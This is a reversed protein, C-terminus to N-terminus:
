AIDKNAPAENPVLYLKPKTKVGSKDPTSYKDMNRQAEIVMDEKKAIGERIDKYAKMVLGMGAIGITAYVTQMTMEGNRQVGETAQLIFEIKSYAGVTGLIAMGLGGAAIGVEKSYENVNRALGVFRNEEM